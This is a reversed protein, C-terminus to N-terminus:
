CSSSKPNLYVSKTTTANSLQSSFGASKWDSSKEKRGYDSKVQSPKYLAFTWFSYFICSMELAKSVSLSHAASSFATDSGELVGCSGPAGLVCEMALEHHCMSHGRSAASILQSQTCLPLLGALVMFHGNKQWCLWPHTGTTGVAQHSENFSQSSDSSRWPSLFCFQIGPFWLQPLESWRGGHPVSHSRDTGRREAPLSSKVGRRCWGCPCLLTAELYEQDLNGWPAKRLPNHSGPLFLVSATTIGFTLITFYILLAEWIRGTLKDRM